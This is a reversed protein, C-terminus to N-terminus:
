LEKSVPLYNIEKLSEPIITTKTSLIGPIKNFKDRILRVLSQPDEARIRLLYCDEGAVHHLELVEPKIRTTYAEIVGKQELKTFKM